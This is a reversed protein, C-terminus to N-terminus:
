IRATLERIMLECKRIRTKRKRWDIAPRKYYARLHYAGMIVYNTLAMFHENEFLTNLGGAELYSEKFVDRDMEKYPRSGFLSRDILANEQFSGLDIFYLRKNEDFVFNHPNNMNSYVMGKYIVEPEMSKIRLLIAKKQEVSLKRKSFLFELDKEIKRGIKESPFRGIMANHLIALSKGFCKAFYDDSFIPFVGDVFEILINCEDNWTIKPVFSLSDLVSKMKLISQIHRNNKDAVKLLKYKKGDATIVLQVSPQRNESGKLRNRIRKELPKLPIYKCEKGLIDKLDKMM